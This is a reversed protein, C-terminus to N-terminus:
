CSAPLRGLQAYNKEGATEAAPAAADARNLRVVTQAPIRETPYEAIVGGQEALTKWREGWSNLTFDETMPCSSDQMDQYSSGLQWLMFRFM